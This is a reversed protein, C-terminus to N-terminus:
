YQSGFASTFEDIFDELQSSLAARLGNLAIKDMLYFLLAVVLIAILALYVRSIVPHSVSKNIVFVLGVQWVFTGVTFFILVWKFSAFFATFSSAHFNVLLASLWLLANVIIAYNTLQAFRNMYVSYSVKSQRSGLLCTVYGVVIYFCMGILVTIFLALDTSFPLKNVEVYSQSSGAMTLFRNSITVGALTILLAEIVFSIYSFYSETQIELGPNKWSDLVWSFYNKATVQLQQVQPNSTVRSANTTTSRSANSQDTNAQSTTQTTTQSTQSQSQTQSTAAHSTAAASSSTSHGQSNTTSTASTAASAPTVQSFQYGCHTCFKATTAVDAGCNPCKKM